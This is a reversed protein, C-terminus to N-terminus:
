PGLILCMIYFITCMPASAGMLVCIALLVECNVKEAANVTSTFATFILAFPLFFSIFRNKIFTM